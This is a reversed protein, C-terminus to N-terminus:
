ESRLSKVPNALAAKISKYGVTFWAIVISISIALVFIWVSLNIRYAFGQLWGNIFYWAAPAAIFFSIGILIMFEKSFMYVISSVSAGLVKRIGVERTRQVAMFSILGYLGLCSIFIALGAFIKYILALQNDQKYFLAIDADVFYYSYAYEPYIGTWTKQISAMTSRINTTKIKVAMELAYADKPFIIMPQITERLSKAKFDKVVGTIASWRTGGLKITKGIIDQPHQFGLKHAMTENIVVQNTSDGVDYGRGADFHFGFTKFYDADGEKLYAQFDEPTAANNFSFDSAWDISSSPADTVLSASRVQPNQLLQQKVIKMKQLASSGSPGFIILVANKDFGLDANNVFNIQSVAAITGIILLQSIAFQAVVLGRRLPISGVTAATIKNKLALVPKFGSVILAPYLGSLIIISITVCLLFVVTGMNLVSINAPVTAINQLYPLALEAIAVALIVSGLVIITTEGIVQIILQLRSSGLVKRIGVEKSRGVSQATSLNIFNIAAMVIILLGILGLTRLNAMSTVHDGFINDFRTDFHLDALPQLFMTYTQGAQSIFNKKSLAALQDNINAVNANPPLSLFIQRYPSISNWSTVYIYENPREKRTVYSVMVRLPLDTNAPADDVIGGVKLTLLNDMKITKGVADSWNGFYKIATSKNLVVMDPDNLVAANGALWDWKFIDFFQPEIFVLGTYETFRKDSLANGNVSPVIIQGGYNSQIAGVKAQPFDVRLTASAPDASGPSYTIGDTQKVQTVVHYINKYGPQFADYSLEYHVVVYILLCAAIGISLGAINITSYVKRSIINRWAIKIYNRIM